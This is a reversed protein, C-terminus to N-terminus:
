ASQRQDEPVPESEARIREAARLRASSARPNGAVDASTPRVPRRTLIRLRAEAGCTCVPFDPPCTCGNAEDAFFKKVRRDELSHYSIAVVRGGPELADVAAPLVTELAGLEDNVEIRLAQFTRRAPHGGTRRTAAPIAARVIEALSGTSEVPRARDIARAIRAAFREEGYERIVRTLDQVTYDNVVEHATLRRTPDMRMDLPGDHRFSFGRRAADLQPSSVGLDLLVGRVSAIGLRELVAALHAFDDHVLRVRHRHPDLVLRSAELAEPDRDVGVLEAAPAAELLRLAHGARGLTADVVVGGGELAPRLIDVVAGALVPQHEM